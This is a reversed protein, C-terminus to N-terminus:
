RRELLVVPIERSTARQYDAFPSYMEVLRPWLRAREDASAKRACVAVRGERPLEVEADPHAMLNHFWAPHKSFGGKSAVIAIRDEDPLYLLPSTRERGSKAGRHRLLLMPVGFLSGGLRGGSLRFAAVHARTSANFIRWFLSSKPPVM